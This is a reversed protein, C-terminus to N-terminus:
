RVTGAVYLIEPYTQPARGPDAVTMDAAPTTLMPIQPFSRGPSLSCEVSLDKLNMEHM